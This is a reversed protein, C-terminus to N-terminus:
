RGPKVRLQPGNAHRYGVLLSVWAFTGVQWVVRLVGALLVGVAVFPIMLLTFFVKVPDIQKAEARIQDSLGGARELLSMTTM